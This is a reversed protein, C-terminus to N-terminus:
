DIGLILDFDLLELPILEVEMDQGRITARAGKYMYRM